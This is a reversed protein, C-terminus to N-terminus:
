IPSWEVAAPVVGCSGPDVSREVQSELSVGRVGLLAPRPDTEGGPASGLEGGAQRRRLARNPHRLTLQRRRHPLIARDM